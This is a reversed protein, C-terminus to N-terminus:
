WSWTCTVTGVVLLAVVSVSAADASVLGDMFAVGAAPWLMVTVAGGTGLTVVLGVGLGLAARVTGAWGVGTVAGAVWGTLWGTVWGTAASVVEGAIPPSGVGAAAVVVIAGPLTAEARGTTAVAGTGAVVTAVLGAALMWATPALGLALGVCFPSAKEILMPM